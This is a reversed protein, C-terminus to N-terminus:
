SYIYTKLNGKKDYKPIKLGYFHAAETFIYGLFFICIPKIMEWTLVKNTAFVSVFYLGGLIFANRIVKGIFLVDDKWGKKNKLTTM